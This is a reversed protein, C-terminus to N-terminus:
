NAAGATQARIKTLLRRYDSLGRYSTRSSFAQCARDVNRRDLTRVGRAHLLEHIATPKISGFLLHHAVCLRYILLREKATEGGRIVPPLTRNLQAVKRMLSSVIQGEAREPADDILSTPSAHEAMVMRTIEAVAAAGARVTAQLDQLRTRTANVRAIADDDYFYERLAHLILIGWKVGISSYQDLIRITSEEAYEPVYSELSVIREGLLSKVARETVHEIPSWKTTRNISGWAASVAPDEFALRVAPSALIRADTQWRELALEHAADARQEHSQALAIRRSGDSLASESIPQVLVRLAEDLSSEDM